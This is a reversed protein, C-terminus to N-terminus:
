YLYLHQFLIYLGLFFDHCYYHPTLNDLSAGFIKFEEIVSEPYWEYNSLKHTKQYILSFDTLELRSKLGGPNCHSVRDLTTRM